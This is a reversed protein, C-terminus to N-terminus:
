IWLSDCINKAEKVDGTHRFVSWGLTDMVAAESVSGRYTEQAVWRAIRLGRETGPMYTAYIFAMDNLAGMHQKNNAIAEEYLALADKWNGGLLLAYAREAAVNAAQSNIGLASELSWDRSYSAQGYRRCFQNLGLRVLLVAVVIPDVPYPERCIPEIANALDCVLDTEKGRHYHAQKEGFKLDQIIAKQLEPQKARLWKEARYFNEPFPGPPAYLSARVPFTM